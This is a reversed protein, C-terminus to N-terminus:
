TNEKIAYESPTCNYVKKFCKTFYSHDNFGVSYGVQSVNTDSNKLLQAALKLRQSRIFESSTLGTLAKLKRHLQMRSMGISKSFEEITFSSTIMQKDVIKQIRNLFNEDVSTIAIDKPTLVIEQSYRLQLKKRIALLNTIKTALIKQNFPKIMYEDAGTQLGSLENEEGAKATLLIIPIHNTREDNKLEKTLDIGDKKPMMIDSIIIDPIHKIALECGKKGNTSSIIRYQNKFNDQLLQNLDKNDEIILLIPRDNNKLDIKPKNTCTVSPNHIISPTIISPKKEIVVANKITNKHLSITLNFSTWENPKSDVAITGEHLKVLENVLALGIGSGSQADHTQYFRKFVLQQQEKSLGKGTNKIDVFLKDKKIYANCIIAGNEPTYKIANSILNTVIKYLADRDLWGEKDHNNLYTLFNINKLSALYEFDKAIASIQQIPKVKQLSLTMSGAEIKSIDLLQNVLESIRNSNNLVLQFDARDKKSLDKNMLKNQIPGSILTLPTRLEHSINSFFHSKVKDLQILEKKLERENNLALQSKIRSAVNRKNNYSVIGSFILIEVLVTNLFYLGNSTIISAINGIILLFSSILVVKSILDKRISFLSIFVVLTTSGFVVRFAFFVDIRYNLYPNLISVILNISAFLIISSLFYNSFKYLRTYNTKFELICYVFYFYFFSAGIVSLQNIYHLLMPHISNLLSFLFPTDPAFIGTVCFLYLSYNLFNKDRSIFFSVLFLLCAISTAGSYFELYKVVSVERVLDGVVSNNNILVVGFSERISLKGTNSIPKKNFYFPKSFDISDTPISLSSAQEIDYTIKGKKIFTGTKHKKYGKKHPIYFDSADSIFTLFYIIKADTKQDIKFRYWYFANPKSNKLHISSIPEFVQSTIQNFSLKKSYDKHLGVEEVPIYISDKNTIEISKTFAPKSQATTNSQLILFLLVFFSRM